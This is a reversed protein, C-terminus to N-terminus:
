VPVGGCVLASASMPFSLPFCVFFAWWVDQGVRMPNVGGDGGRDGGRRTRAGSGSGDRGSEDGPVGFTDRGPPRRLVGRETHLPPRGIGKSHNTMASWEDHGGWQTHTLCLTTLRSRGIAKSQTTPHPAANEPTLGM